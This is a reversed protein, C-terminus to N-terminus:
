KVPPIKKRQCFADWLVRCLRFLLLRRLYHRVPPLICRQHTMRQLLQSLVQLFCNLTQSASSQRNIWHKHSFFINLYLSPLFAAARTSLWGHIYAGVMFSLLLTQFKLVSVLVLLSLFSKLDFSIHSSNRFFRRPHSFKRTACSIPLTFRMAYKFLNQLLLQSQFLLETQCCIM